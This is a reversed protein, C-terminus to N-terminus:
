GNGPWSFTSIDDKDPKFSGKLAMKEPNSFVLVQWEHEDNDMEANSHGVFRQVHAGVTTVLYWIDAGKSSWQAERKSFLNSGSM